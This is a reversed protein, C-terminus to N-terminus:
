EKQRPDKNQCDAKRDRGDNKIALVLEAECVRYNERGPGVEKRSKHDAADAKRKAPGLWKEQIV